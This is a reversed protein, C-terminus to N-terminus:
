ARAEALQWRKKLYNCKDCKSSQPPLKDSELMNKANLVAEEVWDHECKMLIIHTDFKLNKDFMPENKRGNYYVLVGNDSVDFGFKKFVWGYMELQRKYALPYDYKSLTDEWDFVNKSTAKVDSVILEKSPTIWLDDIAGGFTFGKEEDTYYAGRRFNQWNEIEPHDFPVVGPLGAEALVAEVDPHPEQKKRYYDFENKALNDVASNLTFPLSPLSIKHKYQLVFCKPCQLSQEVAFRSLKVTM